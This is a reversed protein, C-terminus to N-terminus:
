LKERDDSTPNNLTYVTIHLMGKSANINAKDLALFLQQSTEHNQTCYVYCVNGKAHGRGAAQQYLLGM